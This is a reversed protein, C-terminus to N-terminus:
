PHLTGYGRYACWWLTEQLVPHPTMKHNVTATLLLKISIFAHISYRLVSFVSLSTQTSGGVQEVSQRFWLFCHLFYTTLELNLLREVLAGDRSAIGKPRDSTIVIMEANLSFLPFDTTLELTRVRQVLVGYRWLVGLDLAEEMRLDDWCWEYHPGASWMGCEVLFMGGPFRLSLNMGPNDSM